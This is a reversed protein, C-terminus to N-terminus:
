DQIGDNDEQAEHMEKVLRVIDNIANRLSEREEPTCDDGCIEDLCEDESVNQNNAVELEMLQKDITSVVYVNDHYGIRKFENLYETYKAHALIAMSVHSNKGYQYPQKVHISMDGIHEIHRQISTHVGAGDSSKMTLICIDDCSVLGIGEEMCDKISHFLLNAFELTNM